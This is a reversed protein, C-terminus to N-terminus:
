QNYIDTLIKKEEETIQKGKLKKWNNIDTFAKPLEYRIADNKGWSFSPIFKPTLGECFINCCVGTVTGTNFSTNIAAKSHDGMLLGFKIGADIEVAGLKLIIRGGTNKINSNSTGAGLNCWEGIISDGLYGDHAKNSYGTLISNRIEGGATCYPGITTAGYLRTGMKIVAYECIALPGRLLSGEMVVANKGIYIPGETANLSCNEVVVGEEIFIGEPNMIKNTGSVPASIRGKTLLFFDQTIAWSNFRICDTINDLIRTESPDITGPLELPNIEGRTNLLERKQRITLIGIRMDEPKRTLAIPYFRNTNVISFQLPM